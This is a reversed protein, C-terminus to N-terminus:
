CHMQDQPRLPAAPREPAHRGYLDKRTRTNPHGRSPLPGPMQDARQGDIRTSHRIRHLPRRSLLCRRLDQRALLTGARLLLRCITRSCQPSHIRAQTPMRRLATMTHSHRLDNPVQHREKEIRTMRGKSTLVKSSNSNTTSNRMSCRNTSCGRSLTRPCRGTRRRSRWGRRSAM